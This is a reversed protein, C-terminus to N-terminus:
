RASCLLLLFCHDVCRKARGGSPLPEDATSPESRAVRSFMMSTSTCTDRLERFRDGLRRQEGPVLLRALGHLAVLVQDVDLGVLHHQLQRRGLGAHQGLMTLPSPPVTALLSTIAVM